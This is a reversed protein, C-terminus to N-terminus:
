GCETAPNSSISICVPDTVPIEIERDVQEQAFAVASSIEGTNKYVIRNKDPIRETSAIFQRSLGSVFLEL